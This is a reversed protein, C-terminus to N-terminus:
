EHRKGGKRTKRSRKSIWQALKVFLLGCWKVLYIGLIISLIALGVFFIGSGSILAFGSVSYPIAFIGRMVLKGAVLFFSFGAIFVCLVLVGLSFFLSLLVVLVSFVLPAGIPAALIALCAIWFISWKSQKKDKEVMKGETGSLPEQEELKKDLLNSILDRAAEKPTGLEEMLEQAGDEDTEEFYEVFYEMADDYDQQPLKKLYKQLQKLYEEKSM